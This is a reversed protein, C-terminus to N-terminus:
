RDERDRGFREEYHEVSVEGRALRVLARSGNKTGEEYAHDIVLQIRKRTLGM